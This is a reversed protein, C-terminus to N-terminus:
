KRKFIKKIRNKIKNKIVKRISIDHPEKESPVLTATFGSFQYYPVYMDKVWDPGYKKYAEKIYNENNEKEEKTFIKCCFAEHPDLRDSIITNAKTYGAITEVGNLIRDYMGYEILYEGLKKGVLVFNAPAWRGMYAVNSMSSILRHCMSRQSKCLPFGDNGGRNQSNSHAIRRLIDLDKMIDDVSTYYDLDIVQEIVSQQEVIKNEIIFDEIKM